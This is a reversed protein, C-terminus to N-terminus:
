VLGKSLCITRSIAKNRWIGFAALRPGGKANVDGVGGISGGNEDTKSVGDYPYKGDANLKALWGVTARSLGVLEVASGDRPTAPKGKTGARDSSGMKDMWTGCNHGNGGFVFGPLHLWAETLCLATM